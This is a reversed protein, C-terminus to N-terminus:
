RRQAARYHEISQKGAEVAAEVAAELVRVLERLAANERQAAALDIALSQIVLDSGTLQGRKKPM